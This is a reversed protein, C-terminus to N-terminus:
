ATPKWMKERENTSLGSWWRRLPVPQASSEWQERSLWVIEQKQEPVADLIHITWALRRHTLAHRGTALPEKLLNPAEPLTWLKGWIGPASRQIAALHHDKMVWVWHLNWTEVKPRAVPPPFQEPVGLLFAQCSSSLPCVQCQPHRPTCVTAGLDMVAQTWTSALEPAPMVAQAFSWLWRDRQRHTLPEPLRNALWRGWVRRVNGDFIAERQAFAFAGIASATSPGVGPLALRDVRSAPMHGQHQTLMNKAARHLNRARSYYGLGEWAQLVSEESAVALAEITPFKRMWPEFYRLVTSVQTQQLMIESLWVAYPDHSKWPLHHRGQSLHWHLLASRLSPWSEQIELKFDTPPYVNSLPDPQSM